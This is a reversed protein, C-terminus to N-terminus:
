PKSWCNSNLAQHGLCIDIFKLKQHSLMNSSKGPDSALLQLCPYKTDEILTNSERVNNAGDGVMAVKKEITRLKQIAQTKQEPM